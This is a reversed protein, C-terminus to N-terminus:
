QNIQLISLFLPKLMSWQSVLTRLAVLPAPHFGQLADEFLDTPNWALDGVLKRYNLDGKFIVLSAESLESYLDPDASKMM